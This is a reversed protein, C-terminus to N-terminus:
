EMRRRIGGGVGGGDLIVVLNSALVPHIRKTEEVSSPQMNSYRALVFLEEAEAHNFQRGDFFGTLSSVNSNGRVDLAVLKTLTKGFFGILANDVATEMFPVSLHTLTDAVVPLAERLGYATIYSFGISLGIWDTRIEMLEALTADNWAIGSAHLEKLHPLQKVVNLVNAPTLNYSGGVDICTLNKLQEVCELGKKTIRRCNKLSLRILNPCKPLLSLLLEDTLGQVGTLDLVGINEGMNSAVMARITRDSLTWNQLCLAGLPPTTSAKRKKPNVLVNHKWERFFNVGLRFDDMRGLEVLSDLYSQLCDVAPNSYMMVLTDDASRCACFPHNLDVDNANPRRTSGPGGCPYRQIPPRSPDSFSIVNLLSNTVLLYVHCSRGLVERYAGNEVDHFSRLLRSASSIEGNEKKAFTTEANCAHAGVARQSSVQLSPIKRKMTVNPRAHHTDSPTKKREIARAGRNTTKMM